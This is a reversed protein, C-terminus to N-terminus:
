RIWSPFGYMSASYCLGRGQSSCIWCSSPNPVSTTWTTRSSPILNEEEPHSSNGTELQNESPEPEGPLNVLKSLQVFGSIQSLPCKQNLETRFFLIETKSSLNSAM